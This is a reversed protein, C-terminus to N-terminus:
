REVEKVVHRRINAASRRGLFLSLSEEIRRYARDPAVGDHLDATLQRTAAPGLFTTLQDIADLSFEFQCELGRRAEYSRISQLLNVKLYALTDAMDEAAKDSLGSRFRAYAQRCDSCFLIHLYVRARSRLTLERDAYAALDGEEPHFSRIRKWFSFM